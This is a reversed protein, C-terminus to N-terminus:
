GGTARRPREEFSTQESLRAEFLEATEALTDAGHRVAGVVTENLEGRYQRLAQRLDAIQGAIKNAAILMRGLQADESVDSGDATEDTGGASEAPATSVLNSPTSTSAAAQAARFRGGRNRCTWAHWITHPHNQRRRETETLTARWAEVQDLNKMLAILKRRDAADMDDFGHLQLWNGYEQNYLKGNSEGHAKEVALNHGTLIAAGTLKWDNWDPKKAKLRDWAKRGLAVTDDDDDNIPPAPGGILAVPEASDILEAEIIAKNDSENTPKPEEANSRKAEALARTEDAKRNRRKRPAMPPLAEVKIVDGYINRGLETPEATADDDYHGTVEEPMHQLLRAATAGWGILDHRVEKIDKGIFYSGALYAAHKCLCTEIEAVGCPREFRPPAPFHNFHNVLRRLAPEGGLKALAARPKEPILALDVPFVIPALGLREFLDAAKFSIWPGCGPWAQVRETVVNAPLVDSGSVPVTLTDILAEPSSALASMTRVSEVCEAGRFHRREAGRPWRGDPLTMDTERPPRDNRAAVEVARWFDEGERESLYAAAGLRYFCFYAVLLRKVQAPPLQAGHIACYVPDLDQARLLAEGFTIIDAATAPTKIKAKPNNGPKSARRRKATM